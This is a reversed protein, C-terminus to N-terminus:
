ARCGDGAPMEKASSQSYVNRGAHCRGSAGAAGAHADRLQPEASVRHDDRPEGGGVDALAARCKAPDEYQKNPVLVKITSDWADYPYCDALFDLGRSRAAEIARIFEPAKNWVNVTGLKIHSHQVPIRAGEGIAIAEELAAFSKDAEDRVHTM